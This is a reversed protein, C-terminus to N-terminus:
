EVEPVNSEGNDEVDLSGANSELSKSSKQSGETTKNESSEPKDDSVVKDPSVSSDTVALEPLPRNVGNPSPPSISQVEQGDENFQQGFENVRSKDVPYIWRQYLIILFVIDDRFCALRHLLPMKIIFSFLDDIITNLTKYMMAKMPMHAVSKLKYNIFIQPFMMIFGFAYVTGVLSNIVWSYWSKHTNYRLSYLAYVVVLPYVVYGLYRMAQEDYEKTEKSYSERDSVEFWPIFGLLRRGGFNEFKVAKGLKWFEIALGVANGITIMLSTENDFLYLLIILEMAIKWVMTRVSVGEISKINKWHSIDNKFALAELVTHAVSVIMTTILLIPNTEVFMRKLEDIENRGTAGFDIQKQWVHDFQRYLSWKFVSIPTLSAELRVTKVTDNMNRLSDHLQWFEEVHMPPFFSKQPESVRFMEAATPPIQSLMIKGSSVVMVIALTPKWMQDYRVPSDGKTSSEEGEEFKCVEDTTCRGSNGDSDDEDGIKSNQRTESKKDQSKESEGLLHKGKKTEDVKHWTVINHRYYLVHEQIAANTISDSDTNWMSSKAIFIHAFWSTNSKYVTEPVDASINLKKHNSDAHSYTLSELSWLAATEPKSCADWFTMDPNLSLFVRM